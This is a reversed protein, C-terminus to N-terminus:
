PCRELQKIWDSVLRVGLEDVITSGIAPMGHVDRRSMREVLISREPAGPALLKAGEVELSGLEPEVDCIGMQELPSQWRLDMEGRGVGDPRHCYACNSELYAKARSELQQAQDTPSVLGSLSAAPEEIVGIHALTKLQPAYLGGPYVTEGVLQEPAFGLVHGAAANHCSLCDGRDPYIWVQDKVRKRKGAALLTADAGDADWEYSYGAWVGDDHRMFHRTEVLEGDIRFNKVIVSGIPLEWGGAADSTVTAGEPLAIYREKLAGDSWFPAIPEYPILGSAPKTPAQPDVCGTQSLKLPRMVVPGPQAEQPDIRYIGAGREGRPDYDLIYVEGSGKDQAFSSISLGTADMLVKGEPEGTEEDPVVAWLRGTVFDGYLYRGVLGPLAQGHYVYGGTISKGEGRGYVVVPEKYDKRTQCLPNNNYCSTGERVNWGYNGGREIIDVEEQASQGVDGTWLTGTEQDFSFKWPNRLGWAYLEPLGGPKDAFPNDPPIEYPAQGDVDLRLMAGLLTQTQQGNNAPDGGSGGDGWAIYLYGDPGFAIQGGNHNNYPQDAEIIVVEDADDLSGDERVRVQSVRSTLGQDPHIYTYSIFARRNQQWQPHFALGLLGREGGTSIRASIDFVRKAEQPSDAEFSVVRGGQEVVYWRELQGPAQLLEVPQRLSIGEWVRTLKVQADLKPRPGAVCTTNTPRVELGLESPVIVRMDQGMDKPQAQDEPTMDQLVGQDPTKSPPPTQAPDSCGSGLSSLVSMVLLYASLERM